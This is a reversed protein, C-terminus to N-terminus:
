DAELVGASNVSFRLTGLGKGQAVLAYAQNAELAPAALVTVFHEPAVGYTIEEVGFDHSFPETRVHWLLNDNGDYLKLNSYTPAKSSDKAHRLTFRPADITEGSSALRIVIEPQCASLGFCLCMCFCVRPLVKFDIM